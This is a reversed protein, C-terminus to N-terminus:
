SVRTLIAEMAAENAWAAAIARIACLLALPQDIMIHHHADPIEVFLSDPRLSERQLAEEEPTVINSHEGRIFALRCRAQLLEDWGSQYDLKHFFDPDFRWTWQGDARQKLGARAIADIVFPQGAPQDPSLRFRALADAESAYLRSRYPPPNLVGNDPIVFSDVFLVGMLREGGPGGAMLCAAKGGFSHPVVLPPAPSDFLGGAEIAAWAEQAMLDISYRDRHGSGGMGSFSLSCVRYDKALLPAVATWWAAHAMSGHLLLIGPQGREGWCLLELDCGSVAFSKRTFPQDQARLFWDPAPPRNGAYSELPRSLAGQDWSRDTARGAQNDSM